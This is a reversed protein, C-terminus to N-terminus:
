HVQMGPQPAPQRGVSALSAGHNQRHREPMCKVNSSQTLLPATPTGHRGSFRDAAEGVLQVHTLLRKPAGLEKLLRYADDQTEIM